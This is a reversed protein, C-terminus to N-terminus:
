AKDPALRVLDDQLHLVIEEGAALQLVQSQGAYHLTWTHAREGENRLKLLDLRGARFRLDLELLYPARLGRIEGDPWSTPLAPLLYLEDDREVQLFFEAVAAGNAFNGDIQFPPHADLLNPYSGGGVVSAAGHVAVPRLQQRVMALAHDGDELRAWLATKWGLSWGTGEDGRRVMSRRVAERWEPTERNITRGPFLGYLHSVHRHAIDGELCDDAWEQLTGEMGEVESSIEYLALRDRTAILEDLFQSEAQAQVGAEYTDSFLEYLLGQTMATSRSIVYTRGDKQYWHEPSTSPAFVLRGDELPQLGALYFLTAERLLVYDEGQRYPATYIRNRRLHTALWASGLPWGAWVLSRKNDCSVPRSHRWLDTNHHLVFGPAGYYLRATRSGTVQLEQVMRLLPEACEALNLIEAPWYNMETNINVTYNSSWPPCLEQNWIGQLNLAETGPRSGAILLYRSYNFLLVYLDLDTGGANHRELRKTLDVYPDAKGDGLTFTLRNFLRKHDALHRARLTAVQWTQKAFRETLIAQEDRGETYPQREFGAFSTEASWYLEISSAGSIALAGTPTPRAVGRGAGAEPYYTESDQSHVRLMGDTVVHVVSLLRMGRQEAEARFHIGGGDISSHAPMVESPAQGYLFLRAHGKALLECRSEVQWPSTQCLTLDMGAPATTALEMVAMQDPESVFLSRTYQAEAVNFSMSAIGTALDLDRKYDTIEDVSVGALNLELDGLKLYSQTNPGLMEEQYLREAEAYDGLMTLRQIKAWVASRDRDDNYGDYAATDRWCEPYGSWLTDVNLALRDGLPDGFYMVGHRGNGLPLAENWDEAARRYFLYTGATKKDIGAM